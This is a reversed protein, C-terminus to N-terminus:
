LSKGNLAEIKKRFIAQELHGAHHKIYQQLSQTLKQIFEQLLVRYTKQLRETRSGL